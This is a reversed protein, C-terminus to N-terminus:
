PKNQIRFSSSYTEPIMLNANLESFTVSIFTYKRAIHAFQSNWLIRYLTRNKIAIKAEHDNSM